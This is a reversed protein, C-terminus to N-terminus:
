SSASPVLWACGLCSILAVAVPDIINDQSAIRKHGAGAVTGEAGPIGMSFTAERM